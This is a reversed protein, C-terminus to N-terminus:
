HLNKASCFHVKIDMLPCSEKGPNVLAGPRIKDGMDLVHNRKRIPAHIIFWGRSLGTTEDIDTMAKYLEELSVWHPTYKFRAVDLILVKDSDEHYAAIPSFHGDGTQQLASRLYSAVIFSNAYETDDSQLQVYKKVHKRFLNINGNEHPYQRGRNKLHTIHTTPVQTLEDQRPRFIDVIAGNCRGMMKFQDMTIGVEKIRKKDICCGNMIIEDDFWRWGSKWRVNPDISLANLVMVLTTLGCYAPEGQTLFQEALPFYSEAYGDTLAQHFLKKGNRSSLAILNSPLVRKHFSWKPSTNSINTNSTYTKDDQEQTEMLKQSNINHDNGNSNEDDASIPISTSFSYIRDPSLHNRHWFVKGQLFKARNNIHEIGRFYTRSALRSVFHKAHDNQVQNWIFKVIHFRQANPHALTNIQHKM